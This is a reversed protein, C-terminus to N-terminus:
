ADDPSIPHVTPSGDAEQVLREIRLDTEALLRQAERVHGIGEEFLTLADDLELDDRELGATIAELRRIHSELSQPERGVIM